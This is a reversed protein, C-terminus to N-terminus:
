SSDVKSVQLTRQYTYRACVKKLPRAQAHNNAHAYPAFAIPQLRIQIQLDQIRLM